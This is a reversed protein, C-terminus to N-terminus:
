SPGASGTCQSRFEDWERVFRNYHVAEDDGVLGGLAFRQLRRLWRGRGYAEDHYTSLTYAPVRLSIKEVFAHEFYAKLAQDEPSLRAHAEDYYSPDLLDEDGDYRSPLSPDESDLETYDWIWAPPKRTLIPPLSLTLEWDIVAALTWEPTDSLASKPTSAFLLNYPELDNHHLVNRVEIDAFFGLDKMERLISRLREWRPLLISEDGELDREEASQLCLEEDIVSYIDPRPQTGPACGQTYTRLPTIRINEDLQAKTTQDFSSILSSTSRTAEEGASRLYGCLPLEVGDLAMLFDVYQDVVGRREHYSMHEYIKDLRTGASYEYMTFPSEIVNCATADFALIRPVPIGLDKVLRWVSLDNLIREDVSPIGDKEKEHLAFARFRPIRLIGLTAVPGAQSNVAFKAPIVRNNSGGRIRALLEVDRGGLSAILETAKHKFTDYPEHVYECTSTSSLASSTSRHSQQGDEAGEDSEPPTDIPEDDSSRDPSENAVTAVNEDSSSDSFASVAIVCLKGSLADLDPDLVEM